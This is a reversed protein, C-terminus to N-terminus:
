TLFEKVNVCLCKVGSKSSEHMSKFESIQVHWVEGSHIWVVICFFILILDGWIIHNVRIVQWVLNNKLSYFFDYSDREVRVVRIDEEIHNWYIAFDYCRRKSSDRILDICMRVLSLVNNWKRLINHTSGM